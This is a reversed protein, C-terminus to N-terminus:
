DATMAFLYGGKELPIDLGRLVLNANKRAGADLEGARAFLVCAGGKQFYKLYTLVSGISAHCKLMRISRGAHAEGIDKTNNGSLDRVYVHGGTGDTIGNGFCHVQQGNDLIAIINVDTTTM